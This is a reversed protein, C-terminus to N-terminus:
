DVAIRMDPGVINAHIRIDDDDAEASDAARGQKMERATADANQADIAEGRPVVAATRVAMRADDTEGVEFMGIVHREKASRIFEPRVEFSKM